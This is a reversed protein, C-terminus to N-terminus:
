EKGDEGGLHVKDNSVASMMEKVEKKIAKMKLELSDVLKDLEELDKQVMKSYSKTITM